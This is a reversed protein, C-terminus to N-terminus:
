NITNAKSVELWEDVTRIQLDNNYSDAEFVYNKIYIQHTKPFLKSIKDMYEQPTIKKEKLLKISNDYEDNYEKKKELAINWDRKFDEASSYDIVFTMQTYLDYDGVSYEIVYKMM